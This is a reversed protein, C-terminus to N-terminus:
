SKGGKGQAGFLFGVMLDGNGVSGCFKVEYKDGKQENCIIM